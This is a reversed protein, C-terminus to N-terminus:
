DDGARWAAFIRLRNRGPMATSLAGFTPMDVAARGLVPVRKEAAVFENPRRPWV